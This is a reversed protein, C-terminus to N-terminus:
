FDWPINEENNRFIKVINWKLNGAFDNYIYKFIWFM